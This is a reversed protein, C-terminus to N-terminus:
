KIRIEFHKLLGILNDKSFLTGKLYNNAPNINFNFASSLDSKELNTNEFIANELDCHNFSCLKAGTLSFDVQQLKCDKFNTKNITMESFSSLNLNCKDFQFAMLFQSIDKFNLGVLKCSSFIVDNFTTHKINVNSLNCEIFECELFVINSIDSNEFNCQTFTCYSYEAKNLITSTYDKNTFTKSDILPLDM